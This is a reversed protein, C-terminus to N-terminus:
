TREKKAGNRAKTYTNIKDILNLFSNYNIGRKFYNCVSCCSVCNEKIYGINNDKRDIGNFVEAPTNKRNFDLSPLYGCYHCEDSILIEFETDNLEFDLKKLKARSTYSQKTKNFFYDEDNLRVPSVPNEKKYKNLVNIAHEKQLCGCSKTYGGIIGGWFLYSTNGCDCVCEVKYADKQKKGVLVVEFKGTLVLRGFKINLKTLLNNEFRKGM